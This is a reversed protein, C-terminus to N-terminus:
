CCPFVPAASGPSRPLERGGIGGPMVMDTMLLEIGDVEELMERAEIGSAVELM